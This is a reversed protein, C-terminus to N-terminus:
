DFRNGLSLCYIGVLIGIRCLTQFIKESKYLPAEGRERTENEIQRLTRREVVMHILAHVIQIEKQVLRKFFQFSLSVEERRQLIM